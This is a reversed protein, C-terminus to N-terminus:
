SISYLGLVFTNLWMELKTEVMRIKVQVVGTRMLLNICGSECCPCKTGPVQFGRLLTENALDLKGDRSGLLPCWIKDLREWGWAPDCFCPCIIAESLEKEPEKGVERRRSVFLSQLYTGNGAPGVASWMIKILNRYWAGGKLKPSVSDDDGEDLVINISCRHSFIPMHKLYSLAPGGWFM